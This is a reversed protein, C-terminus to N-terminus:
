ALRNVLLTADDNGRLQEAFMLHAIIFPPQALLSPPIGKKSRNSIGDSHMILIDGKRYNYSFPQIRRVQHGLTGNHSVLNQTGGHSLVSCTINGIGAFHITQSQPDIRVVACAAGRTSKMAGHMRELITAPPLDQYKYFSKVATQAADSAFVGHGLGDVVLFTNGDGSIAWADGSLIEGKIPVCVVSFNPDVKIQSMRATVITSRGSLSYAGFQVAFRRIAGLGLGPTSATSYGDVLCQNVDTMGPGHDVATIDLAGIPQLYEFYLRGGGSHQLLNNALEVTTVNVASIRQEEFGATRAFETATRRALAVQSPEEIEVISAQILPEM